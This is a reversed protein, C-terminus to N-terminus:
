SSRPACCHTDWILSCASPVRELWGISLLWLVWPCEKRHVLFALFFATLVDGLNRRRM